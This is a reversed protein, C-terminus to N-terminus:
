AGHLLWGRDNLMFLSQWRIMKVLTHCIDFSREGVVFTLMVQSEALNPLLM